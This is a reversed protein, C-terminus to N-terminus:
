QTPRRPLCPMHLEIHLGPQKNCARNSHSQLLFPLIGPAAAHASCTHWPSRGDHSMSGAADQVPLLCCTQDTLCKCMRRLPQACLPIHAASCQAYPLAASHREFHRRPAHGQMHQLVLGPSTWTESTHWTQQLAPSNQIAQSLQSVQYSPLHTLTLVWQRQELEKQKKSHLQSATLASHSLLTGAQLCISDTASMATWGAQLHSGLFSLLHALPVAGPTCSQACQLPETRGTIVDTTSVSQHQHM